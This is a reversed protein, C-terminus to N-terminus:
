FVVMRAISNSFVQQTIMLRLSPSLLILLNELEQRNDIDSQKVTLYDQVKKQLDESLQMNKMTQGASEIM